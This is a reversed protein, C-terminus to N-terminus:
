FRFGFMLSVSKEDVFRGELNLDFSHNALLTCGLILGYNRRNKMSISGISTPELPQFRLHTYLYKMGMYPVLACIQYALAIGVQFGHWKLDNRVSDTPNLLSWLQISNPEVQFYEGQVAIFAGAKSFLLAKTGVAWALNTKTNTELHFVTGFVNDLFDFSSLLAGGKAYFSLRKVLNISVNLFNASYTAQQVKQRFGPGKFDLNLNETIMKEYEVNFHIWSSDPEPTEKEKPLLVRPFSILIPNGMSDAFLSSTFLAILCLFIRPIKQSKSHTKKGWFASM